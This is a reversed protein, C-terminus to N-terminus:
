EELMMHEKVLRTTQQVRTATTYLDWSWPGCSPQHLCDMRDSVVVLELLGDREWSGLVEIELKIGATWRLVVIVLDDHISPIGGIGWTHGLITAVCMPKAAPTHKTFSPWLVQDLHLTHSVHSIHTPNDTSCTLTAYWTAAVSNFQHAMWGNLQQAQLQHSEQNTSLFDCAIDYWTYASLWICMYNLLLLVRSTTSPGLNLLINWTNSWKEEYKKKQM